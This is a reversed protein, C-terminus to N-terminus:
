KLGQAACARCTDAWPMQELEAAEMATSCHQCRGYLGDDDLLHRLHQKLLELYKRLRDEPDDDDARAGLGSIKMTALSGEEGALLRALDNSVQGMKAVLAQRYSMLREPDRLHEPLPPLASM